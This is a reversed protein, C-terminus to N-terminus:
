FGLACGVVSYVGSDSRGGGVLATEFRASSCYDIDTKAGGHFRDRRLASFGITRWGKCVV